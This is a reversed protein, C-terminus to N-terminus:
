AHIESLEAVFREGHAQLWGDLHLLTHAAREVVVSREVGQQYRGIALMLRVMRVMRLATPLANLEADSLVITPLLAHLLAQIAQSDHNDDFSGWTLLAIAVEVIRLDVRSAEFDLVAFVADDRLILNRHTFDGHIIQTPLQQYLDPVSQLLDGLMQVIRIAGDGAIPAGRLSALPDIIYPHIRHFLGYAPPSVVPVQIAQCAQMLEALAAGTRTAAAIDDVAPHDGAYWPTMTMLWARYGDDYLHWDQGTKTPKPVPLAFSVGHEAVAHVVAYSFEILAPQEHAYTCLVHRQQDAATILALHNHSSGAIPEIEWPLPLHWIDSLENINV